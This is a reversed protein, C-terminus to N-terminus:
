CTYKEQQQNNSTANINLTHAPSILKKKIDWSSIRGKVSRFFNKTVKIGQGKEETFGVITLRVKFISNIDKCTLAGLYVQFLHKRKSM